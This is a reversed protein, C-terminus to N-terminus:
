LRQTRLDKASEAPDFQAPIGPHQQGGEQDRVVVSQDAGIFDTKGFRREPAEGFRGAAQHRDGRGRRGFAEFRHAGLDPAPGQASRFDARDDIIQGVIAVGVHLNGREQDAGGAEHGAIFQDGEGARHRLGSRLQLPVRGITTSLCQMPPIGPLRVEIITTGITAACPRVMGFVEDRAMVEGAPVASVISTSARTSTPTSSIFAMTAAQLPQRIQPPCTLRDGASSMRIETSRGSLRSVRSCITAEIM